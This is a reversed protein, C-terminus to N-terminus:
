SPYFIVNYVECEEKYPNNYEHYVDAKFKVSQKESVVIKENNIILELCGKVVLIYEEVGDQHKESHHSCGSKFNIFFTEVNRFPDYSFVTYASMKNDAEIIPETKNFDSIQYQSETDQLFSSLPVKLGTAIKWLTTITPSSVGREIQSLMPKSVGTLKALEDLSYNRKKRMERLRTGTMTKETNM